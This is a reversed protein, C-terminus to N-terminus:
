MLIGKAASHLFDLNVSMNATIQRQGGLSIMDTYPVTRDPNDLNITQTNKVKTGSPFTQELLTRNVTPGNVLFPNTPLKGLAPGPDQGSTPFSQNFSYSFMGATEVAQVLELHTKDYFRGVGARLITTKSSPLQWTLGLRPSINNKDYPYHQGNAFLPSDPETFPLRELDYRLGLNVTTSSNFNWKDQAFFSMYSAKVRLDSAGPVRISFRVPYTAPDAANFPNNTLFTFTGNMNDQAVAHEKVREYEIGFKMDHKNAYWNFTDNFQWADDVRAQAVES